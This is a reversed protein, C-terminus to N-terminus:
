GAVDAEFEKGDEAIDFPREPGRDNESELFSDFGSSLVTFTHRTADKLSVNSHVRSFVAIDVDAPSCMAYHPVETSLWPADFRCPLVRNSRPCAEKLQGIRVVVNM